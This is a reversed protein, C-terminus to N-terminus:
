FDFFNYSMNVEQINVLVRLVRHTIFSPHNNPLWISCPKIPILPFRIKYPYSVSMMNHTSSSDILIISSFTSNLFGKIQLVRPQQEVKMNIVTTSIFPVREKSPEGDSVDGDKHEVEIAAIKKKITPCEFNQHGPKHCKFCLGKKVHKEQKEKSLM